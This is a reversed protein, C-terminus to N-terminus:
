EAKEKLKGIAKEMRKLRTEEKKADNIWLMWEKRHTFAMKNFLAELKNKKLLKKFDDPVEITREETDEKLWIKVKDGPGKKIKERIAKLVIIMHYPTGYKVMSGRYPEGDITCQIPIRSKGFEKKADYPFPVYAGGGGADVLVGTFKFEKM